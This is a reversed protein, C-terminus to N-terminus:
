KRMEALAAAILTMAHEPDIKDAAQRATAARQQAKVAEADLRDARKHAESCLREAIERRHTLCGLWGLNNMWKSFSDCSGCTSTEGTVREILLKALDGPRQASLGSKEHQYGWAKKDPCEFEVGGSPAGFMVCVDERWARGGDRDRCIACHM